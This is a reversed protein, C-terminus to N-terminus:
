FPIEEGIVQALSPEPVPSSAQGQRFLKTIKEPQGEDTLSFHATYGEFPYEQMIDLDDLEKGGTAERYIEPWITVGHKSYKGGQIKWYAKKKYVNGVLM